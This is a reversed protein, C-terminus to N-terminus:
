IRFLLVPFRSFIAVVMSQLGGGGGGDDNALPRFLFFFFIQGLDCLMADDLCMKFERQAQTNAFAFKCAPQPLYLILFALILLASYSAAAAASSELLKVM